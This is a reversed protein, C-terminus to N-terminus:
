LKGRFAFHVAPLADLSLHKLLKTGAGSVDLIVIDGDKDHADSVWLRNNISDYWLGGIAFPRSGRWVLTPPSKGTPDYRWVEDPAKTPALTGLRVFWGRKDGDQVVPFGIVGGVASGKVIVQVAGSNPDLRYIGSRSIQDAPKAQFWGSCTGILGSGGRRLTTCNDLEAIASRRSVKRTDLDVEVVRGPGIASFDKAFSALPLWIKSGSRVGRGPFAMADKLTAEDGLAIRATATGTASLILIDDGGSLLSATPTPDPQARVVIVEDGHRWVDQPNAQFGDSLPWQTPAGGGVWTLVSQARDLVPFRGDSRAESGPVVDGSLASGSASVVTGSHLFGANAVTMKDPDVWSLQTSGYDTAVVLLAGEADGNGGSSAGATDDICGSFFGAM